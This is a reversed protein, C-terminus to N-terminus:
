FPTPYNKHLWEGAGTIRNALGTPIDAGRSLLYNCERVIDALLLMPETPEPEAPLEIVEPRYDRLCTPCAAPTPPHAFDWAEQTSRDMAAWKDTLATV